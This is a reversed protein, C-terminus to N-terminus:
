LKKMMFVLSHLSGDKFRVADPHRAVETFGMKEYLAQGRANGEIYELELQLLNMNKAAETLAELMATGIGLNWFEKKLAIALGCRHLVRRKNGMGNISCNGAVKGDVLAMMMVGTENELLSGLIEKEGELTYNVEDPYRLLFPTEAATIKLYEIMDAAYEPYTPCLTCTRGDKLTITREQFKM